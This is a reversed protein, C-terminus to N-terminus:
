DECLKDVLTYHAAEIHHKYKSSIICKRSFSEVLYVKENRKVMLIQQFLVLSCDVIM